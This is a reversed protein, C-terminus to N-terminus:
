GQLGYRALIAKAANGQIFEYFAVVTPPAGKALVMTQNLPEHLKQPLAIWQLQDAVAPAKCLPLATVGAAAAGSTIYQTAQSINEGLVLHAKVLDWIGLNILAQKAARGYPAHEPNAIAFKPVTASTNRAISAYFTRFALGEADLKLTSNKPCAFALTGIGYQVLAGQSLGAAQVRQAHSPDASLLLSIPAGRIMQTAMVGSSGLQATARPLLPHQSHFAALLEPLAFQLDSAAAILAPQNSAQTASPQGSANQTLGAIGFTVSNNLFRRRSSLAALPTGRM